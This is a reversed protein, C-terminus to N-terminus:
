RRSPAAECNILGGGGMFLGRVVSRPVRASPRLGGRWGSPYGRFPVSIVRFEVVWDGKWNSASRLRLWKVLPASLGLSNPHDASRFSHNRETVKTKTLISLM